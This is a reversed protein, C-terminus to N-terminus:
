VGGGVGSECEMQSCLAGARKGINGYPSAAIAASVGAKWDATVTIGNIVNVLQDAQAAWNAAVAKADMLSQQSKVFPGVAAVCLACNTCTAQVCRGIPSCNDTGNISCQCWQKSKAFSCKTAQCDSDSFCNFGDTAATVNPMTAACLKLVCPTIVIPGTTNYKYIASSKYKTYRLHLVLSFCQIGWLLNDPWAAASPVM